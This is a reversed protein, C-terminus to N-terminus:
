IALLAEGARVGGEGFSFIILYLLFSLLRTNQVNLAQSAHAMHKLTELKENM